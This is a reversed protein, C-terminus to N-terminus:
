GIRIFRSYTAVSAADVRDAVRVRGPGPRARWRQGAAVLLDLGEPDQEGPELQPSWLLAHQDGAQAPDALGHQQVGELRDGLLLAEAGGLALDRMLGLKPRQNRPERAARQERDTWDLPHLLAGAAGGSDELRERQAARLPQLDAGVDLRHEAPRIGAVEAVVEGVEEDREALGAASCSVPM